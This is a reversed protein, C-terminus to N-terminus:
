GAVWTVGLAEDGVRKSCNLPERHRSTYSILGFTFPKVGSGLSSVFLRKGMLSLDDTSSTDTLVPPPQLRFPMSIRRISPHVMEQVFIAFSKM